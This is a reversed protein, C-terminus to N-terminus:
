RKPNKGGTCVKNLLDTSISCTFLGILLSAIFFGFAAVIFSNSHNITWKDQMTGLFINRRLGIQAMNRDFVSLLHICNALIKLIWYVWYSVVGVLYTQTLFGLDQWKGKIWWLFVIPCALVFLVACLSDTDVDAFWQSKLSMSKMAARMRLECIKIRGSNQRLTM